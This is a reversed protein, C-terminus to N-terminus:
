SQHTSTCQPLELLQVSLPRSDKTSLPPPDTLCKISFSHGHYSEHSSEHSLEHSKSKFVRGTGVTHKVCKIRSLQAQKGRREKKREQGSKHEQRSKDVLSNTVRSANWSECFRVEPQKHKHVMASCQKSSQRYLPWSVAYM